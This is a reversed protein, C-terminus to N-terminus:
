QLIFFEKKLKSKTISEPINELFEITTLVLLKCKKEIKPLENLISTLYHVHIDFREQYMTEENKHKGRKDNKIKSNYLSRVKTYIDTGLIMDLTTFCAINETTDFIKLLSFIRRFANIFYYIIPEISTSQIPISVTEYFITDIDQIRDKMDHLSTVGDFVIMTLNNIYEWLIELASTSLTWSNKKIIECVQIKFTLPIEMKKGSVMNECRYYEKFIFYLIRQSIETKNEMKQIKFGLDLLKYLKEHIWEIGYEYIRINEPYTKQIISHLEKENDKPILWGGGEILKPNYLLRIIKGNKSRYSGIKKLNNIMEDTPNGRVVLFSPKPKYVSYRINNTNPRPQTDNKINMLIEGLINGTYGFIDYFDKNVIPQTISTLMSFLQPNQKIKERTAIELFKVCKKISMTPKYSSIISLSNKDVGFSEMCEICSTNKLKNLIVFERMKDDTEITQIFKAKPTNEFMKYYIYQEVSNWIHNELIFLNQSWYRTCLYEREPYLLCPFYLMFYQVINFDPYDYDNLNLLPIDTFIDPNSLKYLNHSSLFKQIKPNNTSINKHSEDLSKHNSLYYVIFKEDELKIATQFTKSDEVKNKVLWYVLPSSIDKKYTKYLIDTKKNIVNVDLKEQSVLQDLMSYSIPETTTYKIFINM